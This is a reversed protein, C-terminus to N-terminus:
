PAGFWAAAVGRASPPMPTEYGEIRTRVGDFWPTGFLPILPLQDSVIRQIERYLAGRRLEDDVMRALTLLQDVRRSEFGSANREGASHLWPHALEHPDNWIPLFTMMLGFEGSARAAQMEARDLLDVSVAIGAGALQEQLLVASNALVPEDAPCILRVPWGPLLGLAALQDRVEAARDPPASVLDPSGAWHEPPFLGASAVATGVTAGEVLAERDIVSAFLRRVEADDLPEQDLRVVVACQRRSVDGSLMIGPDEQLLPIDLPPVSPVIDVLGTVLRSTREIEQEVATVTCGDFRPRGIGWYLRNSRFVLLGDDSRSPVFPGTGVPLEEFALPQHSAGAPMVPVLPSALTAPLTADPASVHLRVEDDGTVDVREVSSWRWADGGPTAEIAREISAALDRATVHKGNSFAMGSRVPIDVFRGKPDPIYAIGAGAVVDGAATIRLPTDFVLSQVWPPEWDDGAVLDIREPIRPLAIRPVGGRRPEGVQASAVRCAALSAAAASLMLHRRTLRREPM